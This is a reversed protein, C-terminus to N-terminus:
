IAVGKTATIELYKKKEDPNVISSINLKKDNWIITLDEEIDTRYRITIKYITEAQLQAAEEGENGRLAKVRAFVSACNEIDALSTEYGGGGDAVDVKNQFTIRERLKGIM